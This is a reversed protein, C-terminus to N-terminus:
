RQKPLKANQFYIRVQFLVYVGIIGAIIARLFAAVSEHQGAFLVCVGFLWNLLLGYFLMQWGSKKMAKLGPAAVLLAAMNLVLFALAIYYAASIHVPEATALGHSGLASVTADSPTPPVHATRWFDFAHMLQAVGIVLVLWWSSAAIRKRWRRPLQVITYKQVWEDLVHELKVLIKM